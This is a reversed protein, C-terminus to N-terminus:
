NRSTATMHFSVEKPSGNEGGLLGGTLAGQNNQIPLTKIICKM